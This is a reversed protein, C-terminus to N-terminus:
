QWTHPEAHRLHEQKSAGRGTREIQKFDGVSERQREGKRERGGEGRRKREREGERQRANESSEMVSQSIIKIQKIPQKGCVKKKEENHFPILASLLVQAFEGRVADSFPHSISEELAKGRPSRRPKWRIKQM